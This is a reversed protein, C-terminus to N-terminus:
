SLPPLEIILANLTRKIHNKAVLMQKFKDLPYIEPDLKGKRYRIFTLQVEQKNIADESMDLEGHAFVNRIRIMENLDDIFEPYGNALKSKSEKLGKEFIQCKLSLGIRDTYLLVEKFEIAKQLSKIYYRCIYEDLLREIDISLDIIMARFHLSNELMSDFAHGRKKIEQIEIDDM